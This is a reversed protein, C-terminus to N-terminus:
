SFGARNRHHPRMLVEFVNIGATHIRILVEGAQPVQTPLEVVELM